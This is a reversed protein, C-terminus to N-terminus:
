STQETFWSKFMQGNCFYRNDERRVVGSQELVRLSSNIERGPVTLKQSIEQRLLGSPADALLQYLERELLRFHSSYLFGLHITETYFQQIVDSVETSQSQSLDGQHMDWLRSMIWHVLYPHGGTEDWIRDESDQSLRHQPEEIPERVLKQFEPQRLARLPVIEFKMVPVGFDSIEMELDERGATALFALRGGHERNAMTARFNRLVTTLWKHQKLLELEDLMIIVRPVSEEDALQTIFGVLRNLEEPDDSFEGLSRAQETGGVLKYSVARAIHHFLHRPQPEHPLLGLDLYAARAQQAQDLRREIEWLFSTKGIRRGGVVLFAVPVPTLISELVRELEESLGFYMGVTAPENPNFPCPVMVVEGFVKDLANYQRALGVRLYSERVNGFTM